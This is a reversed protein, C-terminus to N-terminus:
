TTYILNSKDFMTIPAKHRICRQNKNMLKESEIEVRGFDTKGVFFVLIFHRTEIESDPKM